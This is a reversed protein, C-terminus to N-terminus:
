FVLGPCARKLSKNLGFNNNTRIELPNYNGIIMQDGKDKSKPDKTHPEQSQGEDEPESVGEAPRSWGM